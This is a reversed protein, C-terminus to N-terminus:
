PLSWGMGSSAGASKGPVRSTRCRFSSFRLRNHSMISRDSLLWACGGARGREHWVFSSGVTTTDVQCGERPCQCVMRGQAEHGESCRWFRVCWRDPAWPVPLPSEAPDVSRRTSSEMHMPQAHQPAPAVQGEDCRLVPMGSHRPDEILCKVLEAGIHHQDLQRLHRLVEREQPLHRRDQGVVFATTGGVRAGAEAGDPIAPVRTEPTVVDMAEVRQRGEHLRHRGFVGRHELLEQAAVDEHSRRREFNWRRGDCRSLRRSPGQEEAVVVMTRIRLGGRHENALDQGQQSSGIRRRFEPECPRVLFAHLIEGTCRPNAQQTEHRVEAAEEPLHAQEQSGQERSAAETHLREGRERVPDGDDRIGEAGTTAGNALGRSRDDFPWSCQRICRDLQQAGRVLGCAGPQCRERPGPRVEARRPPKKRLRFKRLTEQLFSEMKSTEKGRVFNWLIRFVRARTSCSATSTSPPSSRTSGARSSSPPSTSTSSAITRCSSTTCTSRCSCSSTRTSVKGEKELQRTIETSPLPFFFGASVDDIGARGLKAALRVTAQMDEKEDTPYALVFFAGVNLGAKVSAHVARFLKEDTLMKKMHKRTRESGSEPAFNLSRCGSRVLLSAVEEDIIESRTGAPLQWTIKLGRKEVESCFEVVWERKLIATLDQFPFNSAGYKKHYSEIEDIV